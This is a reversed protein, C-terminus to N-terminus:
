PLQFGLTIVLGKPATTPTVSDVDIRLTDNTAVDDNATDITYSAAATDSGTEDEDITLVVSLMDATDTLNHIMVSSTDSGTGTGATVNFGHVYVLDMGNLAPPIHFYAKGDGTSVTDTPAFVPIGYYRIGLNSGALGDPSVARTADTGTNTEASTAVEIAGSVTTSASRYTNNANSIDKNTLTQTDSTGVITGSPPTPGDVLDGDANWQSLDGSTGKTGTVLTVDSGSRSTSKIASYPLDQITNDDGDITKNTLTLTSSGILNTVSIQRSSGGDVIYLVDAGTATTTATLDSVKTNAM